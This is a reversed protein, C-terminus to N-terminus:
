INLVYTGDADKKPVYSFRCRCNVLNSASAGNLKDGPYRLKEGGVIFLEDKGIIQNDAELHSTRERNDRMSMWRKNMTIVTFDGSIETGANVAFTTETRAIRMAQWNYFNPSNVTKMIRDRMQNITENEDTSKKIEAVVSAVYTETLLKINEGGFKSYYDVLWTQFAKSFLPYSSPKIKKLEMEYKQFEKLQLRGAHNGITYHVKFLAKELNSKKITISIVNQANDPTLFEFPIKKSLARFEKLIIRFAKREYSPYLKQFNM